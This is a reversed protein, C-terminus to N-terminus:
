RCPDKECWQVLVLEVVGGGWETTALSTPAARLFTYRTVISIAAAATADPTYVGTTVDRTRVDGVTSFRACAHTVTINDGYVRRRAIERLFFPRFFNANGFSASAISRLNKEHHPTRTFRGCCSTAPLRSRRTHRIRKAMRNVGLPGRGLKAHGVAATRTGFLVVVRAAATRRKCM